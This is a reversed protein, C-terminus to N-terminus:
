GAVVGLSALDQRLQAVDTFLLAQIGVNRAGDVNIQRDDIFVAEHPAVHLRELVRRFADAEPKISAYRSSIFIIDFLPALNERAIVEELWEYTYNSLLAITYKKKLQEIFALLEKNLVLKEYIQPWVEESNVGLREAILRVFEQNPIEARDVQDAITQFYARQFALNPVNEELWIWYADVGIVGAFDFILARIM